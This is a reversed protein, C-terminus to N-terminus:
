RDGAARVTATASDDDCSPDCHDKIEGNICQPPISKTCRCDKWTSPCYTKKDLCRCQPPISLTCVCWDCCDEDPCGVGGKTGVSKMIGEDFMMFRDLINIATSSPIHSVVSFMLVVLLLAIPSSSSAM